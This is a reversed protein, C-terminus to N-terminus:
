RYPPDCRRCEDKYEACMRLVAPGSRKVYGGKAASKNQGNECMEKLTPSINQFVNLTIQRHAVIVILM